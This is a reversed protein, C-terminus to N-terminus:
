EKKLFALEKYLYVYYKRRIRIFFRAKTKESLGGSITRDFLVPKSIGAGAEISTTIVAAATTAMNMTINTNMITDADATVIM